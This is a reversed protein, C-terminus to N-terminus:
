GEPKFYFKNGVKAAVFRKLDANDKLAQVAEQYNADAALKGFPTSVSNSRQGDYPMDTKRSKAEYTDGIKEKLELHAFRYKPVVLITDTAGTPPDYLVRAAVVGRLTGALAAGAGTQATAIGRTQFYIGARTTNFPAVYAIVRETKVRDTKPKAVAKYATRKQERSKERWAQEAQYAKYLEPGRSIDTGM